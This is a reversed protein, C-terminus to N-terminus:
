HLSDKGEWPLSSKAEMTGQVYFPAKEESAKELFDEDLPPKKQIPEKDKDEQPSPTPTAVHTKSSSTAM